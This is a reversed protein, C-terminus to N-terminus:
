LLLLLLFGFHDPIFHEARHFLFPLIKQNASDNKQRFHIPCSSMHRFKEEGMHYQHFSTPFMMSVLLAYMWRSSINSFALTGNSEFRNPVPTPWDTCILQHGKSISVTRNVPNKDAAQQGVKGGRLHKSVFTCTLTPLINTLGCPMMGPVTQLSSTDRQHHTCPPPPARWM